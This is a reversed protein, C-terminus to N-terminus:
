EKPLRNAASRIADAFAIASQFDPNDVTKGKQRGKIVCAMSRYVKQQHVYVCETWADFAILEDRTLHKKYTSQNSRSLAIKIRKM